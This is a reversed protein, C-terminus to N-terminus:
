YCDFILVFVMLKGLLERARDAGFLMEVSRSRDFSFREGMGLGDVPGDAFSWDPQVLERWLMQLAASGFAHVDGAGLAM